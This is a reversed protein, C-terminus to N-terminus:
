SDRVIQRTSWLNGYSVIYIICIYRDVYSDLNNILQIFISEFLWLILQMSQTLTPNVNIQLNLESIPRKQLTKEVNFSFKIIGFSANRFM